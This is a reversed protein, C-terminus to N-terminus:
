SNAAIGEGSDNVCRRAEKSEREEVEAPVTNVM